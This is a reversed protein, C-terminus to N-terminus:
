HTEAKETGQETATKEAVTKYDGHIRAAALFLVLVLVFSLLATGLYNVQVEEKHHSM